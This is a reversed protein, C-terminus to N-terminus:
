CTPIIRTEFCKSWLLRCRLRRRRRHWQKPRARRRLQRHRPPQQQLLQFTQLCRPQRQHPPLQRQHLRAWPAEAGCIGKRLTCIARRSHGHRMVRTTNLGCAGVARGARVRHRVRHRMRRRLVRFRQQLLRQHRLQLLPQCFLPRPRLRQPQHNPPRAEARVSSTGTRSTGRARRRTGRRIAREMSWGCAGRVGEVCERRRRARRCRRTPRRLVRHPRRHPHRHRQRFRRHPRLQLQPLRPLRLPGTTERAICTAKMRTGKARSETGHTARTTRQGCAGRARDANRQLLLLM